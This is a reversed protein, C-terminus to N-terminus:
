NYDGSFCQARVPCEKARPCLTSDCIKTSPITGAKRSDTVEQAKDFLYQVRADNREVIFEKFPSIEGNEDKIGHGRLMYIISAEDTNVDKARPDGSEAVLRLYLQTRLEHEAKPAKLPKFLSTAMIKVEIMRLKEGLGHIYGDQGGSAGSPHTFRAEEYTWAANAHQPINGPYPGWPFEQGCHSVWDGWMNDRLYDNNLRAQKDNGEDFTIRLNTPIYQDPLKFKLTETLRVERPCYEVDKTLDSAHITDRGRAKEYGGVSRNILSKVPTPDVVDKVYTLFSM